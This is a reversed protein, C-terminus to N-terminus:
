DSEEDLQLFFNPSLPYVIQSNEHSCSVCEWVVEPDIGPELNNVRASFGMRVWMPLDRVYQISKQMTMRGDSTKETKRGLIKEDGSPEVIKDVRTIMQATLLDISAKALRPSVNRQKANNGERDGMKKSAKDLFKSDGETMYHWHIKWVFPGRDFEMVQNRAERNGPDNTEYELDSISVRYEAVNDCRNCKGGFRYIDGVSLQRIRMVLYLYDGILLDKFLLSAIKSKDTYPGFSEVCDLVIKKLVTPDFDDIDMLLMDSRGSMERIVLTDHQGEEDFVGGGPLKVTAYINNGEYEASDFVDGIQDQQKSEDEVADSLINQIEQQSLREPQEDAM